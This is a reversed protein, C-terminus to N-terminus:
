FEQIVFINYQDPPNTRTSHIFSQLLSIWLVTLFKTSIIRQFVPWYCSVSQVVPGCFWIHWGYRM